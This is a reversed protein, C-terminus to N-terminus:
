SNLSVKKVIPVAGFLLRRLDVKLDSLVISGEGTVSSFITNDADSLDIASDFKIQETEITESDQVYNDTAIDIDSNDNNNNGFKKQLIRNFFGKESNVADNKTNKTKNAHANRLIAMDKVMSQYEERDLEMDGNTDYLSVLRSALGTLVRKPIKKPPSVLGASQLHKSHTDMAM